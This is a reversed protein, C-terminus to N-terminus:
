EFVFSYSVNGNVGGAPVPFTWSQFASVVCASLRAGEDVGNTVSTSLVRGAPNIRAQVTLRGHLDPHDM